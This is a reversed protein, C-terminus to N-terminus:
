ALFTKRGYPLVLTGLMYFCVILLNQHDAIQKVFKNENDVSNREETHEVQSTICLISSVM